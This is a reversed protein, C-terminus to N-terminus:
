RLCAGASVVAFGESLWQDHFTTFGVMPGWWQHSVEHPTVEDVFETLGHEIGNFLRWRQTDDLYASMPLYVLTPWSQGYSFAPQQTIAIRGFESKGFWATFLRVANQAETIIQDNLASPSLAGVGEIEAACLM